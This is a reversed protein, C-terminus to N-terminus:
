AEPILRHSRAFDDMDDTAMGFPFDAIHDDAPQRWWRAFREPLLRAPDRLILSQALKHQIFRSAADELMNVQEHRRFVRIGSEAEDDHLGLM